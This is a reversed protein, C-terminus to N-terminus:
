ENLRSAFRVIQLGWTQLSDRPFRLQSLPIRLEAVWGLSDVATAAEWIPDWSPDLGSNGPGLADGRVGSPNINFEARGLHDHYTDFIITLLDSDAGRDRRVLRTRVGAAGLEDYMRAGVWIAEDDYLFRVETRQTAPRGEDPQSQTFDTAPEAARWAAEDLRGDLVIPTTRAAARVSCPADPHVSRGPQALAPGATAAGVLVIALAILGRGCAGRAPAPGPRPCPAIM